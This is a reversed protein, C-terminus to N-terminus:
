APQLPQPPPPEVPREAAQRAREEGLSSPANLHADRRVSMGHQQVLEHGLWGGLHLFGVGVLALVFPSPNRTEIGLGLRVLWSALFLAATTLQVGLHTLAVRYARTNRPISRFDVLGAVAALLAGVIGCTALYFAIQAWLGERTALHVIDFIPVLTLLGLPFVVLLPHISHGLVKAKGQM